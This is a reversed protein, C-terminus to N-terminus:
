CCSIAVLAMPILKFLPFLAPITYALAHSLVEIVLVPTEVPNFAHTTYAPSFFLLLILLFFWWRQTLCDIRSASSVSMAPKWYLCSITTM